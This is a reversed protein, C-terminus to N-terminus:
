RGPGSESRQQQRSIRASSWASRTTSSRTAARAELASRRTPSTRISRSRSRPAAPTSATVASISARVGGDEVHRVRGARGRRAPCRSTWCTAPRATRRRCWCDRRRGSQRGGDVVKVFINHIGQNECPSLRRVEILSFQTSPKAASQPRSRRRPRFWPPRPQRPSRGSRRARHACAHQDAARAYRDADAHLHGDPHAHQDADRDAHVDADPMPTETPWPTYTPTVDIPLDAIMAVLM